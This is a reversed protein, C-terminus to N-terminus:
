ALHVSLQQTTTWAEKGATVFGLAESQYQPIMLHHLKQWTAGETVAILLFAQHSEKSMTHILFLSSNNDYSWLLPM